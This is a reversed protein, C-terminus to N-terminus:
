AQATPIKVTANVSVRVQQAVLTTGGLPAFTIREGEALANGTAMLLTKGTSSPRPDKELPIEIRLVYHGPTGEITAKM